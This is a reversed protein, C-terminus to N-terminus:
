GRSGGIHPQKNHMRSRTLLLSSLEREGIARGIERFTFFPGLAVIIIGARSLIGRLNGGVSSLSDSIPKGKLAGILAEELVHFCIFVVTFMLSKYIIPDILPKEKFREGLHLDDAVLMVKALVLANVIPLGFFVYDIHYQSLVISEHLSFLFFLVWLYITMGLFKEAEEIIKRRRNKRHRNIGNPQVAGPAEGTAARETSM